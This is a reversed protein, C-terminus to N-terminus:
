GHEQIVSQCQKSVCVKSGFQVYLGSAQQHSRRHRRKWPLEHANWTVDSLTSLTKHSAEPFLRQLCLYMLPGHNPHDPELDDLATWMVEAPWSVVAHGITAVRARTRATELNHAEIDYPSSTNNGHGEQQMGGFDVALNSYAHELEALILKALDFAWEHTPHYDLRPSERYM